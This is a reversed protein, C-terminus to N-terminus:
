TAPTTPLASVIAKALDLPCGWGAGHVDRCLRESLVQFGTSTVPGRASALEASQGQQLHFAERWTGEKGQGM